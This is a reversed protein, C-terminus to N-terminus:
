FDITREDIQRAGDADIQLMVWPTDENHDPYCLVEAGTAEHVAHACASTSEWPMTDAQFWLSTYPGGQVRETIQVTVRSGNHSGEYVAVPVERVSTLANLTGNLWDVADEVLLDRVFVELTPRPM